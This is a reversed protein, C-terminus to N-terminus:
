LQSALEDDNDLDVNNVLTELFEEDSLQEANEPLDVDSPKRSGAALYAHSLRNRHGALEELVADRFQAKEVDSLQEAVEALKGLALNMELRAIMHPDSAYEAMRRAKEADIEAYLERVKEDHKEIAQQQKDLKASKDVNADALASLTELLRTRDKLEIATEEDGDRIIVTEGDIEINGKGLLKRKRISVGLDSLLDFVQDGEKELIARREYYQAKSMPSHESQDLFDVFREFGLGQYLRGEQFVELSRMVESNIASAIKLATRFGGVLLLARERDRENHAALHEELFEEAVEDQVERMRRELKDNPM